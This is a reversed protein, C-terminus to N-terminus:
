LFVYFLLFLFHVQRARYKVLFYDYLGHRDEPKIAESQLKRNQREMFDDYGASIRWSDGEGEANEDNKFKQSEFYKNKYQNRELENPRSFEEQHRRPTSPVFMSESSFIFGLVLIMGVFFKKSKYEVCNM